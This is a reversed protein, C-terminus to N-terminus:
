AGVKYAGEGRHEVILESPAHGVCAAKFLLFKHM